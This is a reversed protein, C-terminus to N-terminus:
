STVRAGIATGAGAGGCGTRAGAGAGAGVGAGIGTLGSGTLVWGDMTLVGLLGCGTELGLASGM